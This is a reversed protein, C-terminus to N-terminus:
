RGLKAQVERTYTNGIPINHEGIEIHTITYANIHRTSVIYSRHVRLFGDAPLKEDFYTLTQYTIYGQASTHIKVYDKLGEIYLVDALLVRIMKKNSKIYIFAEDTAKAYEKYTEAVEKKGPEVWMEYKEIARLFREFSIPKLLYDIVNLEYGEIAYERYATTIIVAPPNKLTRLLEIGTIHPMQIDLFLLSPKYVKLANFVAAGNNCTAVINLREIKRVHSEIVERALAEDDAIICDINNM